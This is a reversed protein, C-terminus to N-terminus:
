SEVVEREKTQVVCDAVERAKKVADTPSNRNTAVYGTLAAMFAKRWLPDDWRGIM